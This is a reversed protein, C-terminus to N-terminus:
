LFSLKSLASKWSKKLNKGLLKWIQQFDPHGLLGNQEIDPLFGYGKLARLKMEEIGNDNILNFINDKNNKCDISAGETVWM